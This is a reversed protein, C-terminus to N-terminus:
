QGITSFYKVGSQKMLARASLYGALIILSGGTLEKGEIVEDSLWQASLAAAVLEFLLIVASRYVPMHTVGYQVSLTMVIIMVCGILTTWTLIGTEVQPIPMDALMIWLAALLTVGAWASVTKVRVSINQLKRVLVNSVSFAMGSTIAFWDAYDQPWPFGLSPDWLMIMAGIMAVTLTAVSWATLQEKLILWGLLTSWLPSLYFLLVVRVVNGDIVALIFAINLWGNTIAIAALLLPQQAIEGLKRWFVLSGCLLAAGYIMLSTWLGSIGHSEAIRLPYWAIGWLSATILLSIVPLVTASHKSASDSHM